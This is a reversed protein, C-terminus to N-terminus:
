EGLHEAPAPAPPSVEKEPVSAGGSKALKMADNLYKHGFEMGAQFYEMPDKRELYRMLIKTVLDEPTPPPPQGGGGKWSQVARGIREIINTIDNVYPIEGKPASPETTGM